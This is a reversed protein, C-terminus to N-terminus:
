RGESVQVHRLKNTVGFSPGVNVVENSHGVVVSSHSSTVTLGKKWEQGANLASKMNRKLRDYNLGSVKLQSFESTAVSM